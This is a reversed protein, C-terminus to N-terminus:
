FKQFELGVRDLLLNKISGIIPVFIVGIGWISSSTHLNENYIFSFHGLFAVNHILAVLNRFLITGLGGLIGLIIAFVVMKIPHLSEQQSYKQIESKIPKM